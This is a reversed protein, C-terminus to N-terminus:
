THAARSKLMPVLNVARQLLEDSTTNKVDSGTNAAM